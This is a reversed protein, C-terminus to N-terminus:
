PASVVTGEPEVAVGNRTVRHSRWVPLILSALAVLAGFLILLWGFDQELGLEEPMEEPVTRVLVGAIIMGAGLLVSLPRGWAGTGALILLLGLGVEALGLWATHSFGLVEVVPRAFSNDIGARLMAVLGMAVAGIGVGLSILQGPAFTWAREKITVTEDESRAVPVERVMVGGRRADPEVAVAPEAPGHVVTPDGTQVSTDDTREEDHQTRHHLSM